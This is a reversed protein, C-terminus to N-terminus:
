QYFIFIKKINKKLYESIRKSILWNIVSFWFNRKYNKIAQPYTRWYLQACVVEIPNRILIIMKLNKFIRKYREFFFESHVDTVVWNKKNVEKTLLDFCNFISSVPSIPYKKKKIKNILEEIKFYFNDM